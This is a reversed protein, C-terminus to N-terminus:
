EDDNRKMEFDATPANLVAELAGAYDAKQSNMQSRVEKLAKYYSREIATEYRTLRAAV